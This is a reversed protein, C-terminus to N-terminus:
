YFRILKKLNIYKNKNNKISIESQLFDYSVKNEKFDSLSVSLSAANPMIRLFAVFYQYFHSYIEKDYGKDVM